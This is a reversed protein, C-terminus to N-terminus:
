YIDNGDLNLKKNITRTKNVKLNGTDRVQQFVQVSYTMTMTRLFNQIHKKNIHTVIFESETHKVVKYILERVGFENAAGRKLVRRPAKVHNCFTM